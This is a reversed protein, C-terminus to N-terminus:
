KLFVKRIANNDRDLVYIDGNRDVHIGYMSKFLAEKLTGDKYGSKFSEFTGAAGTVTKVAGAPTAYRICMNMNDVFYINGTTPDITVCLPSGVRAVNPDGDVFGLDSFSGSLLRSQGAPPVVAIFPNYFDGGAYYLTGSADIAMKDPVSHTYGGFKTLSGNSESKFVGQYMKSVYVTGNNDVGLGGSMNDMVTLVTSVMGAPTIKRVYIRQGAGDMVYLNDYIDAVITRPNQFLATALPGDVHGAASGGTYVSVNGGPSLKNVQQGELFYLNGNRDGVLGTARAFMGTGPGGALTMVGARKFVPGIAYLSNVKVNLTGTSLNAPAVVELTTATASVVTATVGNFTVINEAANTSFGMGTVTVATGALGNDPSLSAVGLNQEKFPPGGTEQGNVWVKMNGAGAGAPITVLLEKETAQKVVAAVGNFTVNNEDLVNSFYNGTITVDKGAPGSLPAVTALVPPPVVTFVPGVTKQGNITVTLPGTAVDDPAAVVLQAATASIVTGPKGNFSVANNASLANFGEGTITVQTGKGGKLPKIKEIQQFLFSPGTVEKGDVIVKIEGTGASVPVAAILLTDNVSTIVAEKGNILVKAPAATSSFGEGAISVNTGAPGNLPSASRMSLNQYTYTGAELEKGNTKVSIKGTSGGAPALVTMVSDNADVVTAATGNFSVENDKRSFGGGNITVITGAKGSNPWFSRISPPIEATADKNRKCATLLLLACLFYLLSKM